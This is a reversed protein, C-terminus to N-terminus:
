RRRCRRDVAPNEVLLERAPPHPRRGDVPRAAASSASISPRRAPAAREREDQEVGVHRVEVAERDGLLDRVRGSSAPAVIMISLEDPCDVALRRAAAVSPM